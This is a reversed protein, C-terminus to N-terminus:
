TEDQQNQTRIKQKKHKRKGQNIPETIENTETMLNSQKDKTYKIEKNTRIEILTNTQKEM